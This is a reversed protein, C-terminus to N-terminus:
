SDDYRVEEDVQQSILHEMYCQEMHSFPGDKRGSVRASLPIGTRMPM